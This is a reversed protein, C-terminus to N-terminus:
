RRADNLSWDYELFHLVVSGAAIAESGKSDDSLLDAYRAFYKARPEFDEKFWDFIRSV